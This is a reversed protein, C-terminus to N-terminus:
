GRLPVQRPRVAYGGRRAPKTRRRVTPEFWARRRSAFLDGLVVGVVLGGTYGMAVVIWPIDDTISRSNDNGKHSTPLQRPQSGGTYGCQKPMNEGCLGPNGEYSNIPFTDFQKGRPIPGKLDNYSVSFISLTTIDALSQPIMGTLNNNSLDLSELVTLNGLSSPISGTLFNNSFNLGQLGKLEGVLDPITGQFLNSSFDIMVLVVPIKPYYQKLGKYIVTMTYDYDGYSTYALYKGPVLPLQLYAFQNRSSNITRMATWSRFYEEPLTGSFGNDSLDIIQLKQFVPESLPHDIKGHFKNSHLILVHLEPLSGLWYPFTDDIRNGGLDIFVLKNCRALSRPLKGGLQNHSLDIMLLENRNALFEPITGHFGNSQLNLIALHRSANGLCGPIAGSMNNFSLDLLVLDGLECFHSLIEGELENESILYFLISKPPAPIPRKFKNHSLDLTLLNLHPLLPLDSEQGTLFNHSLNMYELRHSSLNWIWEPVDGYIKNDSLDIWDLNEQHRLFGPFEGLNCSSLGLIDLQPANRVPTTINARVSLQNFSLLLIHLSKLQIFEDLEVSGTFVNRKLGIFQLNQLQSISPPIEGSFRNSALSLIALDTMNMLCPLIPGSLNNVRFSLLELRTLNSIQPPVTGTLQNFALSLEVLGTLNGISPSIGGQLNMKGLYLKSLMTMKWIWSLSSLPLSGFDNEGIDLYNLKGLQGLSSPISGSFSGASLDLQNLSTLNGISVPIKGSFDTVGMLFSKLPSSKNFEPLQGSLNENEIM